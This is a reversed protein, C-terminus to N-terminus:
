NEGVLSYCVEEYAATVHPWDSERAKRLGGEILRNRLAHDNAISLIHDAFREVDDPSSVLGNINHEIVDGCGPANTTVVPLSAAMAQIVVQPFLELRSPFVFVDAAQFLTILDDGPIQPFRNSHNGPLSPGIEPLTHVSDSVGSKYLDPDLESTDRGVIRWAFHVGRQKLVKAIPPIAVFNKKPDNRGVTLIFFSDDSIGYAKRVQQANRRMSQFRPVDVGNPIDMINSEPVGMQLYETHITETMAVVRDMKKLAYITRDNVKPNRRMGHGIDNDIQIDSGHTRLILPVTGALSSAIYADPYAGIVIWVDYRHIAQLTRIYQKGLFPFKNFTRGIAPPLVHINIPLNSYFRIDSLFSEFRARTYIHVDHGRELMRQSINYLFIEAGGIGALPLTSLFAIKLNSMAISERFGIHEIVEM